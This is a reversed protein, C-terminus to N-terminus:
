VEVIQGKRSKADVQIVKQIDVANPVLLVAGRQIEDPHAYGNILLLIWWLSTTGYLQYSITTLPKGDYRAQRMKSKDLRRLKIIFPSLPDIWKKNFRHEPDASLDLFNVLKNEVLEMIQTRLYKVEVGTSIARATSQSPLEDNAM